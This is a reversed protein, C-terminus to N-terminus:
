FHKEGQVLDDPGSYSLIKTLLEERKSGFLIKSFGAHAADGSIGTEFLSRAHAGDLSTEM